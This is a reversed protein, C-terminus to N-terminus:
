PHLRDLFMGGDMMDQWVACAEGRATFHAWAKRAFVDPAMLLIMANLAERSVPEPFHSRAAIPARDQETLGAIQQTYAFYETTALCSAHPCPVTDFLAHAMEHQIVSAFLRDTPIHAFLSQKLRETELASPSLVEIWNEGCHFLGICSHDLTEVTEILVPAPDPLACARFQALAADSHTCITQALAPSGAQVSVLGNDCLLPQAMPATAILGLGLLLIRHM